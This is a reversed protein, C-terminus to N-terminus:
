KQERNSARMRIPDLRPFDVFSTITRRMNAKSAREDVLREKPTFSTCAAELADEVTSDRPSTSVGGM